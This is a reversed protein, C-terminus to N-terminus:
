DLSEKIVNLISELEMSYDMDLSRDLEERVLDHLTKLQTISFEILKDQQTM